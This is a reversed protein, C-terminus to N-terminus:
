RDVSRSAYDTNQAAADLVLRSKLIAHIAFLYKHLTSFAYGSARKLAAVGVPRSQHYCAISVVFKVSSTSRIM